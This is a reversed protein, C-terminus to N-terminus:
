SIAYGWSVEIECVSIRGAGVLHGFQRSFDRAPVSAQGGRLSIVPVHQGRHYAIPSRLM